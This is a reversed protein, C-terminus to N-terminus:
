IRHCSTMTGRATTQARYNLRHFVETDQGVFERGYGSGGPEAGTFTGERSPVRDDKLVRLPTIDFFLGVSAAVFDSEVGARRAFRM